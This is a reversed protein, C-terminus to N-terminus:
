VTGNLLCVDEYKRGKPYSIDGQLNTVKHVRAAHQPLETGDVCKVFKFYFNKNIPQESSTKSDM